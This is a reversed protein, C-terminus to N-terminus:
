KKDKSALLQKLLSAHVETTIADKIDNSNTIRHEAKLEHKQIKDEGTLKQITEILGKYTTISNAWLKPKDEEKGTQLYTMMKQREDKHLAALMNTLFEMSELKMKKLKGVVQDQLDRAYKDRQEDWNYKYRCYLVDLESLGKNLKAIETCSYNEMFLNLMDAALSPAIPKVGKDAVTLLSTWEETTFYQKKSEDMKKVM